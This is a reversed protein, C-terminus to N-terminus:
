IRVWILPHGAAINALTPTGFTSPLAGYTQAVYPALSSTVGAASSGGFLFSGNSLASFGRTSASAGGTDFLAVLFYWGQTISHSIAIEKEATSDTTVVGADLRLTSPMTDSGMNYIGLRCNGAVGTTQEIGIKTITCTDPIFIPVAFLRDAVKTGTTLTEVFPHSYYRNAVMVPKLPTAVPGVDGKDGVRTFKMALVDNNAFPSTTSSAVNAVTINKYGSPSAVATVNFALWKTADGLKVLLIQGKITSTSDDFSDIVSTWTSGDAGILGTRIVTSANQTASSLRLYSAGPDSDTTTTSFTYTPAFATGAAIAGMSAALANAESQFTPLAALFADANAVFAAPAQSRSPVTPLDSITM